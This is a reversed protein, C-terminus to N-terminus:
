HMVTFNHSMDMIIPSHWKYQCPRRLFALDREFQRTCDLHYLLLSRRASRCQRAYYLLHAHYQQRPPALHNHNNQAFEFRTASQRPQSRTSTFLHKHRSCTHHSPIQHLPVPRNPPFPVLSWEAIPMVIGDHPQPQIAFQRASSCEESQVHLLLISSTRITFGM